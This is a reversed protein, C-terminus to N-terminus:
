NYAPDTDGREIYGAWAVIGLAGEGEGIETLMEQSFASAPISASALLAVACHLTRRM